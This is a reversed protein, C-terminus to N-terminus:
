FHCWYSYILIYRNYCKYVINTKRQMVSEFHSILLYKLLNELLSYFEVNRQYTLRWSKTFLAYKFHDIESRVITLKLLRVNADEILNNRLM